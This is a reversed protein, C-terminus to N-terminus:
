HRSRWSGGLARVPAAEDEELRGPYKAKVGVDPRTQQRPSSHNDPAHAEQLWLCRAEPGLVQCLVWSETFRRM